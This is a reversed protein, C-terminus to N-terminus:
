SGLDIPLIPHKKEYPHSIKNINWVENDSKM